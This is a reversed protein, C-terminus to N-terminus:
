LKAAWQCGGTDVQYGVFQCGNDCNQLGSTDGQTSKTDWLNLQCGNDCSQLGSADGQTSKTDWLNAGMIVTKCGV